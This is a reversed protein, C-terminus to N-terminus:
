NKITIYECINKGIAYDTVATSIGARSKYKEVFDYRNAYVEKCILNSNSDNFVIKISDSCGSLGIIGCFVAISLAISCYLNKM